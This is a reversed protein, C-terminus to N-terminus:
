LDGLQVVGNEDIDKMIELDVIWVLNLGLLPIVDHKVDRENTSSPERSRTQNKMFVDPRM